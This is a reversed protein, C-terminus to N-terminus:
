HLLAVYAHAIAEQIEPSQHKKNVFDAHICYDLARLLVGIPVEHTDPSLVCALEPCLCALDEDEMQEALLRCANLITKDIEFLCVERSIIEDLPNDSFSQVSKYLLCMPLLCLLYVKNM